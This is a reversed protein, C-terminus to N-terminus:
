LLGASKLDNIYLFREAPVDDLKGDLIARVDHVVLERPV